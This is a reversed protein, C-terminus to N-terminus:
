CTHLSPCPIYAKCISVEMYLNTSEESPSAFNFYAWKFGTACHRSKSLEKFAAQTVELMVNLSYKGSGLSHKM